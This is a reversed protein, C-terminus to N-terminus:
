PTQPATAPAPPRTRARNGAASARPLSVPEISPLRFELAQRCEHAAAAAIRWLAPSRCMERSITLVVFSAGHGWLAIGASPLAGEDRTRAPLQGDTTADTM